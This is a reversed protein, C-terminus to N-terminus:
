TLSPSPLPAHATPHLPHTPTSKAPSLLLYKPPPFYHSFLWQLPSIELLALGQGIVKQTSKQLPSAHPPVPGIANYLFTFDNQQWVVRAEDYRSEARKQLNRKKGFFAPHILRPDSVEREVHGKRVLFPHRSFASDACQKEDQQGADDGGIRGGGVVGVIGRSAESHLNYGFSAPHLMESPSTLRKENHSLGAIGVKGIVQTWMFVQRTIICFLVMDHVYNPLSFSVHVHRSTGGIQRLFTMYSIPLFVNRTAVSSITKATIEVLRHDLLNQLHNRMTPDMPVIGYVGLRVFKGERERESSSSVISEFTMYFVNGQTDQYAFYREHNTVMLQSLASTELHRVAAEQPLAAGAHISCVIEGQRDCHFFGPEFLSGLFPSHSHQSKGRKQIDSEDNSSQLPTRIRAPISSAIGFHKSGSKSISTIQITSQPTQTMTTGSIIPLQNSGKGPATSPIDSGASSGNGRSLSNNATLPAILFPSALRTEYM